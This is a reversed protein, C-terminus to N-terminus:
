ELEHIHKKFCTLTFSTLLPLFTSFCHRQSFNSTCDIYLDIMCIKSLRYISLKCYSVNICTYTYSEQQSMYVSTKKKM